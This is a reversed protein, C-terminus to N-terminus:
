SSQFVFIVAVALVVVLVVARMIFMRKKAAAAKPVAQYKQKSTLAFAFYGVVGIIAIVRLPIV